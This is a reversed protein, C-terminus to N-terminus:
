RLLGPQHGHRPRVRRSRRGRGRQDPQHRVAARRRRVPRGPIGGVHGRHRGARRPRTPPHLGLGRRLPQFQSCRGSAVGFAQAREGATRAAALGALVGLAGDADLMVGAGRDQVVHIDAVANAVGTALEDLYQPLLRLGHTDIGRLSTDVLADAVKEADPAPVGAETLAIRTLSRAAHEGIVPVEQQRPFYSTMLSITATM